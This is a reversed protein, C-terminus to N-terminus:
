SVTYIQLAMDKLRRECRNVNSSLRLSCCGARKKGFAQQELTSRLALKLLMRQVLAIAPALAALTDSHGAWRKTRHTLIRM